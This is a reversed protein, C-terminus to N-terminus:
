GGKAAGRDRLRKDVAAVVPKLGSLLAARVLFPPYPPAEVERWYMVLTRDEGMSRLFWRGRNLPLRESPEDWAAVCDGIFEELKIHLDLPWDGVPTSVTGTLHLVRKGKEPAEEAAQAAKVYPFIDQFHNYDTVVAWVDDIPFDVVTVVHVVKRGDNMDLLHAVVGEASSKPIYPSQEGWTGRIYAWGLLGLVLVLLLV